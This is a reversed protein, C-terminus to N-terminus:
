DILKNLEEDSWIVMKGERKKKRILRRYLRMIYLWSRNYRDWYSRNKNSIEPPRKQKQIKKAIRIKM